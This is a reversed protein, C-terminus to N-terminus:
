VDTLCHKNVQSKQDLGMTVLKEWAFDIKKQLSELTSDNSVVLNSLRSKAEIPLQNAERRALEAQDWGRAAARQLRQPRPSDICWIVDCCLDWGSEFLLPVDLIAVPTGNAAALKLQRTIEVRTPPHVISELFELATRSQQDDGFVRSAIVGRRVQGQADIVDDGFYGVLQRRVDQQDLVERAIQDADIWVAGKQQLYKAVTSKGGAPTGVIGLLIM